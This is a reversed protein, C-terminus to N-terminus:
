GGRMGSRIRANIDSTPSGNPAGGRPGGDVSGRNGPAALGPEEELVKDLAAALAKPELSGDDTRPLDSTDLFRVATAPNRFKTAAARIDAQDIREQYAATVTQTAEDAAKKRAEELAREHDTMQGTRLKELESRHQAAEARAAKLEREANRAREKFAALAKEGKEGLDDDGTGDDGTDTGTDTASTDTDAM